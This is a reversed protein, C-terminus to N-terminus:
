SSIDMWGRIGRIDGFLLTKIGYETLWGMVVLGWGSEM